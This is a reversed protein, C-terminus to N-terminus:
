LINNKLLKGIAELKRIALNPFDMLKPVFMNVFEVVLVGPQILLFEPFNQKLVSFEEPGNEVDLAKEVADLSDGVPYKAEADEWREARHAEM